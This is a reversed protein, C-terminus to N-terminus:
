VVVFNTPSKGTGAASKVAIKGTSAGVPVTTTIQGDNNVTFVAQVGNFKVTTTGTFNAGTIVVTAGVSGTGPSVTTITPITGVPM